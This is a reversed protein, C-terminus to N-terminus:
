QTTNPNSGFHMCAEFYVCLAVCLSLSIFVQFVVIGNQKLLILLNMVTKNLLTSKCSILIAKPLCICKCIGLHIRMKCSVFPLFALLPTCHSLNSSYYETRKPKRKGEKLLVQLTFVNRYYKMNLIQNLQLVQVIRKLYYNMCAISPAYM